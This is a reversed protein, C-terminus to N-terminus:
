DYLNNVIEALHSKVLVDYESLWFVILGLNNANGILM